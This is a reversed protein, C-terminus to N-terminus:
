RAAWRVSNKLIQTYAPHQHAAGDHGLTNVVIRGNAHDVTWVIPYVEGTEQEEATALVEIASGNADQEFRYLEDEITFTAPVNEMVPHDPRAIEVEFAGYDLHSRTGGGVLERNFEPWDPWNYWAGAHGIVLGKGSDVFNFIGERLDSGQMPQNSTIRLVDLTDLAGPVRDPADTYSFVIGVSELIDADEENFWRDFDHATGGGLTLVNIPEASEAPRSATRAADGRPQGCASMGVAALLLM